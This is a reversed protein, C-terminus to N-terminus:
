KSIAMPVPRKVVVLSLLFSIRKKDIQNELAIQLRARDWIRFETNKCPCGKKPIELVILGIKGAEKAGKMM